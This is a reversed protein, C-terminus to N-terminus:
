EDMKFYTKIPILHCLGSADYSNINHTGRPPTSIASTKKDSPEHNSGQSLCSQFFNNIWSSLEQVWVVLLPKAYSGQDSGATISM